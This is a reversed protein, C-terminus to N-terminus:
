SILIIGQLQRFCEHFEEEITVQTNTLNHQVQGIAVWNGREQTKPIWGSLDLPHSKVEELTRHELSGFEASVIKEEIEAFIEDFVPPIPPKQDESLKDELRAEKVRLFAVTAFDNDSHIVIETDIRFDYTLSTVYSTSLIKCFL